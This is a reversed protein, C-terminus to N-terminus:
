SEIDDVRVNYAFWEMGLLAFIFIYIFLLVLFYSIDKFTQIM